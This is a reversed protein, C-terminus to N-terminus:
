SCTGAKEKALCENDLEGSKPRTSSTQEEYDSTPWNSCNRCFHWTDHGKKKRYTKM